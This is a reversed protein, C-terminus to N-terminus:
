KRFRGNWCNAQWKRFRSGGVTWGKELDVTGVVKRGNELDVMGVVKRGNESDVTGAMFEIM